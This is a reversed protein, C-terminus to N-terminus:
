YSITTVTFSKKRWMIQFQNILKGAQPTKVITILLKLMRKVHLTEGDSIANEELTMHDKLEKGYHFVKYRRTPSCKVKKQLTEDCRLADTEYGDAQLTKKM